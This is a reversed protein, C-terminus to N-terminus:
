SVLGHARAVRWMDSPDHQRGSLSSGHSDIADDGPVHVPAHAHQAADSRVARESV